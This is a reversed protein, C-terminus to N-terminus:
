SRGRGAPVKGSSLLFAAVHFASGFLFRESRHIEHQRYAPEELLFDVRVDLIGVLDSTLLDIRLLDHPRHEPVEELGVLFEASPAFHADM